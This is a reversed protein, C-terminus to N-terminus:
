AERVSDGHGCDIRDTDGGIDAAREGVEDIEAGVGDAAVLLHDRGLGVGRRRVELAAHEVDDGAGLHRHAFDGEEGVAGRDDDICQGFALADLDRQDRSLSEAVRQFDRAAIAGVEEIEAIALRLREHRAVQAAFHRAADARVALFAGREVQGRQRRDDGVEAAFADGRDRDAQQVSVGIGRVFRAHEIFHLAEPGLDARDGRM